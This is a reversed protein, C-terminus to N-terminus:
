VFESCRRGKWETCLWCDNDKNKILSFVKTAEHILGSQFYAGLVNSVPVEDPKLGGVQMEQFLDICKEPQRNKLYGSILSNWSVVNKNSMRDFLWRARDIEGGKAYMDTLADM